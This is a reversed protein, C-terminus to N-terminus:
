ARKVKPDLADRLGDGLLNFAIVVILICLGPLTVLWPASEIYARADSLMTGWEPIPPQAGLGLFGLAAANLIGDSFGFSAQVLLPAMCNPLVNIIYIRWWSAGFSKSAIVYNKKKEVLISARVIRVVNPLTVIGVAIVTNILSPGLIAVVVIALLISPLSLVIDMLRMIVADVWGGLSGALLGLFLGFIMNFVVVFFGIGLSVRSGYILRTLIDRGLDDTGLLYQHNAGEQWFPPLKLASDFITIPEYPALLPALLAILASLVVLSLGIVAGRNQKFLYWFDRV